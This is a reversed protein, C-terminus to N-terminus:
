LVECRYLPSHLGQIMLNLIAFDTVSGAAGVDRVEVFRKVERRNTRAFERVQTISQVIKVKGSILKGTLPSGTMTAALAALWLAVQLYIGQVFLDDFFSHAALYVLMGLVGLALAHAWPAAAVAPGRLVRALWIVVSLWVAAFSLLGIVGTEALVNLYINHAHGLAEEWLPLRFSPYAAAYSGPGVGLWPSSEWMRLAAAWHAVREVVAFNEDTVPQKLM